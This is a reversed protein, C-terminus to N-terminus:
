DCDITYQRIMKKLKRLKYDDDSSGGGGGRLNLTSSGGTGQDPCEAPPCSISEDDDTLIIGDGFTPGYNFWQGSTAFNDKLFYYKNADNFNGTKISAGQENKTFDYDYIAFTKTAYDFVCVKGAYEKRIEADYRHLKQLTVTGASDESSEKIIRGNADYEVINFAGTTSSDPSRIKLLYPAVANAGSKFNYFFETGEHGLVVDFVNLDSPDVIIRLARIKEPIIGSRASLTAAARQFADSITQLSYAGSSSSIVANTVDSYIFIDANPLTFTASAGAPGVVTFQVNSLTINRYTVQVTRQIDAALTTATIDSMGQELLRYSKKAEQYEYLAYQHTNLDYAYVKKTKPTGDEIYVYRIAANVISGTTPPGRSWIINGWEDSPFKQYIDFIKSDNPDTLVKWTGDTQRSYLPTTNPTTGTLTFSGAETINHFIGLDTTDAALGIFSMKLYFNKQYDLVTVTEIAANKQFEFAIAGYKTVASQYEAETLVAGVVLDTGIKNTVTYTYTVDYRYEMNVLGDVYRQVRGFVGDPGKEFVLLYNTGPKTIRYVNGSVEIRDIASMDSKKFNGVALLAGRVDNAYSYEWYYGSLGDNTDSHM